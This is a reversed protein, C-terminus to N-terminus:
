LSFKVTIADVAFFFLCQVEGAEGGQSQGGEDKCASPTECQTTSPPHHCIYCTEIWSYTWLRPLAMLITGSIYVKICRICHITFHASTYRDEWGKLLAPHFALFFLLFMLHFHETGTITLGQWPFHFCQAWCICECVKSQSGFAEGQHCLSLRFHWNSIESQLSRGHRILRPPKLPKSWTLRRWWVMLISAGKVPLHVWM